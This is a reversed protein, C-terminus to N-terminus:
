DVHRLATLRTVTLIDSVNHQSCCFFANRSLHLNIPGYHVGYRFNNDNDDVIHKNSENINM